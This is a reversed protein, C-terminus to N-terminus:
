DAAQIPIPILVQRRQARILRDMQCAVKYQVRDALRDIAERMDAGIEEMVLSRNKLQVVIRALKDAGGRPGNVDSLRVTVSQVAQGFRGLAARIRRNAHNRLYKATPLGKAKIQVEM